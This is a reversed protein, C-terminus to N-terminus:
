NSGNKVAPKNGLRGLIGSLKMKPGLRGLVEEKKPGLRSMVTKPGLRSTVSKRKQVGAASSRVNLRLDAGGSGGRSSPSKEVGGGGGSGGVNVALVSASIANGDLMENNLLHAVRVADSNNQIFWLAGGTNRGSADFDLRPLPLSAFPAGKSASNLHEVAEVLDEATISYNINKLSVISYPAGNLSKPLSALGNSHPPAPDNPPPVSATVRPAPAFSQSRPPPAASYDLDMTASSNNQYQNHNQNQSYSNNNPAYVGANNVNNSYNNNNNNPRAYNNGSNNIHNNRYRYTAM